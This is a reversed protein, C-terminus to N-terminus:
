EYASAGRLDRICQALSHASFSIEGFDNSDSFSIRVSSRAEEPTLGISTLVHSPASEKSNCASGASVCVGYKADLLLVLTESDVGKIRLNLIKGPSEVSPGNVFVGADALSDASLGNLLGRIFSQKQVSHDNRGSRMRELALECARGMGVISAVNETGGRLGFEQANGGCVLPSLLSKDRVYLAGIGKPGHFKHASVSAFDVHMADVDIDLQGAAQVCDTHFLIERKKCFKGIAAIDNVSGLENNVYMVSVLGTINHVTNWVSYPEITGDQEPEIFSTFFGSRTLEEAARLTSHHETASVAIHTRGLGRLHRELGHFVLSNGESGGSTFIIHDPTCHFMRAVQRRALEIADAADKGFSYAAGPNGYQEKLYPLMTDLVREDMQTTAANDLYIM